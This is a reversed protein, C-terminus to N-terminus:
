RSVEAAREPGTEDRVEKRRSRMEKSDKEPGRGWFWSEEVELRFEDGALRLTPVIVLVYERIGEVVSEARYVGGCDGDDAIEYIIVAVDCGVNIGTVAPVDDAIPDTLVVLRTRFRAALLACAFIGGVIKGDIWDVGFEGCCPEAGGVVECDVLSIVVDVVGDATGEELECGM